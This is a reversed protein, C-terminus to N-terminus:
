KKGSSAPDASSEAAKGNGELRNGRLIADKGPAVKIGYDGNYQSLNDLVNIRNIEEVRQGIHFGNRDNGEVLNGQIRLNQSDIAHIGDGANRALESNSISIDAGYEIHIGNGWPSTDFRSEAIEVEQTHLLLLNHQLGAGPVVSSGNDSFDCAQITVGKAGKIAVGQHTHNRVTLHELHINRLHEERLGSFIIGARSPAMQYSRQRRDQNPDSSTKVTLAGEIVFDRLIVDHLDDVANVLATGARDNTLAPDLFLITEIGEGALTIGSPIQLMAPLTHVGNKLLVTGGIKAASDIAAQISEGPAVPIANSPVPTSETALAGAKPAIASLVPPGSATKPSDPLPGKYSTLVQVSSKSRTKELVKETYPMELGKVYRYHQFVGEYIDSFRGRGKSSIEGYAPVEEGLLYKATYEYGLALRNDATEFLDVGQNWAIQATFAFHGLGLQTHGMDRTSEQCQGSPYIYKTLGGNGNGLLFQDESRDFMERDDLFIGISMMTNIIAADWNGNAEPFFDVLMPYYATLLMKRFQSIDEAQWGSDTHKLIEAANCFQHGTWGALVKADNDDFDWLVASWANLIEISKQAHLKNGTIYWMLAHEYAASASASLEKGGISPRGYPGRIVHTFPQPKFDLSASESLNEFAAKWPQEGSQVKQKMWELDAQTQNIGPHVFPASAKQALLGDCAALTFLCILLLYFKTKKNSSM